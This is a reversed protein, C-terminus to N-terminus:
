ESFSIFVATSPLVMVEMCKGTTAFATTVQLAQFITLFVSSMLLTYSLSAFVSCGEGSIKKDSFITFLVYFLLMSVKHSLSVFNRQTPTYDRLYLLFQNGGVTPWYACAYVISLFLLSIISLANVTYGLGMLLKDCVNPDNLAAAKGIITGSMVPSEDAPAIQEVCPSPAPIEKNGETTLNDRGRATHHWVRKFALTKTSKHINYQKSGVFLKHNRYITAFAHSAEHNNKRIDGTRICISNRVNNTAVCGIVFNEGTDVLGIRKLTSCDLSRSTFGLNEGLFDLKSGNTNQVLM